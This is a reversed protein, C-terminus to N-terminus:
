LYNNNSVNIYNVTTETKYVHTLMAQVIVSGNQFTQPRLGPCVVFDTLICTFQRWSQKVHFFHWKHLFM